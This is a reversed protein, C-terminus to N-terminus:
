ENGLRDNSHSFEESSFLSFLPLPHGEDKGQTREARKMQRTGHRHQPRWPLEQLLGVGFDVWWFATSRWKM